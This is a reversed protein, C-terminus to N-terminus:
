SASTIKEPLDVGNYKKYFQNLKGNKLNTKIWGNIWNKLDTDGKRVGVGFSIEKLTFKSELHLSPNKENMLKVMAPNQAVLKVQGSTVSTLTTAEDDFRVIQASPPAVKTVAVDNTTGRTAAIRKGALDSPTHISMSVPAALVNLVAAYPMSFDIVQQREPTVALTSIVIDARKSILFPIRNPGTTPVIELKVGLDQALLQATNVDYGEAELNPGKFGFPPNGLDIAVKIAKHAKIDSLTDAQAAGHAMIFASLMGIMFLQKKM